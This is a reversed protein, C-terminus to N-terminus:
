VSTSVSGWVESLLPLSFAVVATVVFVSDFIALMTLIDCLSAKLDINRLIFLFKFLVEFKKKSDQRSRLVVISAVNGVLGFAGVTPLIVGELALRTIHIVPSSRM